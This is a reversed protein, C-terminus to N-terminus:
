AAQKEKREKIVREERAIRKEIREELDAYGLGAFFQSIYSQNVGLQKSLWTQTRHIKKLRIYLLDKTEVQLNNPSENNEM